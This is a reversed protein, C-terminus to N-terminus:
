KRKNPFHIDTHQQLYEEIKHLALSAHKQVAPISIKLFESIEEYKLGDIRSIRFIEKQRNPLSEIFKNLLETYDNEIITNETENTLDIENMLMNQVFHSHVDVHKLKNKAHNKVITKTFALFSPVTGLLHRKEWLQLFIDHAMDEADSGNMYPKCFYILRERYRIYLERLAKQSGGKLLEVLERDQKESLENIKSM